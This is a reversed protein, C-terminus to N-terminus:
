QNVKENSIILEYMKQAIIEYSRDKLHVLTFFNGNKDNKFIDILNHVNGYKSPDKTVKNLLFEYIDNKRLYEGYRVGGHVPRILDYLEIIKKEDEELYNKRYLHPQLFQYHKFNHAISLIKIQELHELFIESALKIRNTFEDNNQIRIISKKKISKFILSAFKSNNLIIDIFYQKIFTIKKGEINSSEWDALEDLYFVRFKNLIKQDFQDSVGIENWGTFSVVLDPNLKKFFFNITLIDQTQTGNVQALNYVKAKKYNNCLLKKDKNIIRELYGSITNENNTSGSGWAASGGLVVVKFINKDEISPFDDCRFGYSNNKVQVPLRPNNINHLRFGIPLYFFMPHKWSEYWNLYSHYNENIFDKRAVHDIFYKFRLFNILRFVIEISIFILILFILFKIM